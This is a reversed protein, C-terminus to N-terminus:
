QTFQLWRTDAGKFIPCTDWKSKSNYYLELRCLYEEAARCDGPCINCFLRQEKIDGFILTLYRSYSTLKRPVQKLLWFRGIQIKQLDLPLLEAELGVQVAEQSQSELDLTEILKVEQSLLIM